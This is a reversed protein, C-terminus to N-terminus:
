FHNWVDDEGEPEEKPEEEKDKDKGEESKEPFLHPPEPLSGLLKQFQPLKDLEFTRVLVPIWGDGHRLRFVELWIRAEDETFGLLREKDYVVESDTPDFKDRKTNLLPRRVLCSPTFVLRTGNPVRYSKWFFKKLLEGVKYSSPPYNLKNCVQKYSLGQLKLGKIIAEDVKSLFGMIEEAYDMYEGVNGLQHKTIEEVVFDMISKLKRNIEKTDTTAQIFYLFFHAYVALSLAIHLRIEAFSKDGLNQIKEYNYIGRAVDEIWERDEKTLGRVYHLIHGHHFTLKWAAEGLVELNRKWEPILEIVIARRNLGRYEELVKSLLLNKAEGTFLVPVRIPNYSTPAISKAQINTINYILEGFKEAYKERNAVVVEDVVLPIRFLSYRNNFAAQTTNTFSLLVPNAYLATAIKARVSKGTGMDGVFFLIPNTPAAVPSEELFQKAIWSLFHAIAFHLPTDDLAFLERYIGKFTELDGRVSPLLFDYSLALNEEGHFFFSLAQRTHKGDEGVVIGWTGHECRYGTFTIVSGREERVAEIYDALFERAEKLKKRNISGLPRVLKIYPTDTDERRRVKKIYSRGRRDVLEVYEEEERGVLYYRQIRFYPLVKVAAGNGEVYYWGDERLEWNPIQIDELNTQEKTQPEEVREHPVPEELSQTPPPQPHTQPQMEQPAESNTPYPHTPQPQPEEAKKRKRLGKLADFIFHGKILGNTDIQKHPCEECIVRFEKRIVRYIYGCSSLKLNERQRKIAYDLYYDAKERTYKPHKQSKEHFEQWLATEEEPNEAYLIKVAQVNAMIIWEEYSHNEWVKDLAKLVECRDLLSYFTEKPIDRVTYPSSRHAKYYGDVVERLDRGKGNPRTQPHGNTTHESPILCAFTNFFESLPYPEHLLYAPLKESVFRTAIMNVLSSAHFDLTPELTKLYSPIHSTLLKYVMFHLYGDTDGEHLYRDYKNREVFEDFVYILHWGKKSKKVINPKLPLKEILSLIHEEPYPHDIDFRWAKFKDWHDKRQTIKGNHPRFHAFFVRLKDLYPISNLVDGAISLPIDTGGVLKDITFVKPFDSLEPVEDRLVVVNPSLKVLPLNQSIIGLLELLEFNDLLLGQMERVGKESKKEKV